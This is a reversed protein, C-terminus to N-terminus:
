AEEEDQEHIEITNPMVALHNPIPMAVEARFRDGQQLKEEVRGLTPRAEIVIRHGEFLGEVIKATILWNADKKAPPEDVEFEYDNTAPLKFESLPWGRDSVRHARM